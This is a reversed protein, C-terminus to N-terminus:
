HAAEGVRLRLRGDLRELRSRIVVGNRIMERVAGMTTWKAEEIPGLALDLVNVGDGGNVPLNTPGAGTHGVLVEHPM